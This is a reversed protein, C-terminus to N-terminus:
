MVLSMRALLSVSGTLRLDIVIPSPLKLLKAEKVSTGTLAYKCSCFPRNFIGSYIRPAKSRASRCHPNSLTIRCIVYGGLPLIIM